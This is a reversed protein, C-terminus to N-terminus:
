SFGPISPGGASLADIAERDVVDNSPPILIPTLKTEEPENISILLLLPTRPVEAQIM